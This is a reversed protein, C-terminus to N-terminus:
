DDGPIMQGVCHACAKLRAPGESVKRGFDSKQDPVLLHEAMAEPTEIKVIYPQTQRGGDAINACGPAHVRNLDDVVFKV